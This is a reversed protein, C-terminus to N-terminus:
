SLCQPSPLTTTRALSPTTPHKQVPASFAISTQNQLPDPRTLILLSIVPIQSHNQRLYQNRYTASSKQLRSTTLENISDEAHNKEGQIEYM